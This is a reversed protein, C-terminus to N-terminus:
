KHNRKLCQNEVGKIWAGNLKTAERNEEIRGSLWLMDNEQKKSLDDIKQRNSESVGVYNLMADSLKGISSNMSNLTFWLGGASISIILMITKGMRALSKWREENIITQKELHDCGRCEERREPGEYDTQKVRNKVM